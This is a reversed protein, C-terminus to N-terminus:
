CRRDRNRCRLGDASVNEPEVQRNWGAIREYSLPYLMQSRILLNPTRIGGLAGISLRMVVGASRSNRGDRAPITKSLAVSARRNVAVCYQLATM